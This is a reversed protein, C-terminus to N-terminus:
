GARCGAGAAACTGAERHRGREEVWTVQYIGQHWHSFSM